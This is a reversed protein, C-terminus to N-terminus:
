EGAGADAPPIRLEAGIPLLHPNELLDRNLDFLELSRLRDGLYREALRELTDGNHIVHIRYGGSIAAAEDDAPADAAYVPRAAVIEDAAKADLPPAVAADGSDAAVAPAPAADTAVAVSANAAAIPEQPSFQGDLVVPAALRRVDGTPAAPSPAAPAASHADHTRRFPLALAFGM